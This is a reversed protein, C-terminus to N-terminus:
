VWLELPSKHILARLIDSRTIIGALTHSTDLIPMSGIREEFLIKAIESIRTDPSATLVRAKILDTISKNNLASDNKHDYFYKFVDRDSIIGILVNEENTIPVHRFRHEKIFHLADNINTSHSLTKVPTTMIQEAYLVQRKSETLESAQKYALHASTHDPSEEEQSSLTFADEEKEPDAEVNPAKSVVPVRKQVVRTEYPSKLRSASDVWIFAM